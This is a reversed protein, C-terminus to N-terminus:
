KMMDVEFKPSKRLDDKSEGEIERRCERNVRQKCVVSNMKEM